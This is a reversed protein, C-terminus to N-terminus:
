EWPIEKVGQFLQEFTVARFEGLMILVREATSLCINARALIDEGGEFVVKGDSVTINEGGIRGVEFKLVSELGFICPCCIKMRKM